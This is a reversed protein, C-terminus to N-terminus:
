VSKDLAHSILLLQSETLLCLFNNLKRETEFSFSVNRGIELAEMCKIIYYEVEGTITLQKDTLIVSTAGFCSKPWLNSGLKLKAWM